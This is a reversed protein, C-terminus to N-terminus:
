TGEEALRRLICLAGIAVFGNDLISARLQDRIEAHDTM